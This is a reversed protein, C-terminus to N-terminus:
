AGPPETAMTVMIRVDREAPASGLLIRTHEQLLRRGESFGVGSQTSLPPEKGALKYLARLVADVTALVHAESRGLSSLGFAALKEQLPRVDHHRLSLYHLLNEASKRYGSHTRALEAAFGAEPELMGFRINSLRDLLEDLEPVELGRDMALAPMALGGMLSFQMCWSAVMMGGFFTACRVTGSDPM